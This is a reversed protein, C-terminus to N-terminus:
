PDFVLRYSLWSMNLWNCEWRLQQADECNSFRRVKEQFICSTLRLARHRHRGPEFMLFQLFPSIKPHPTSVELFCAALGGVETSIEEEARKASSFERKRRAMSTKVASGGYWGQVWTRVLVLSISTKTAKWFGENKVDQNRQPETSQTWQHKCKM